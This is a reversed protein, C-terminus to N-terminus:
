RKIEEKHNIVRDIGADFLVQTGKSYIGHTTFLVIELPKFPQLRKAVEIFTRGGDCIDDVILFKRTHKEPVRAFVMGDVDGTELDRTKNFVIVEDMNGGYRSAAGADPFVVTHNKFEPHERIERIPHNRDALSLYDGLVNSHADITEFILQKQYCATFVTGMTHLCFTTENSVMHDQRGYPLFDAKIIVHRLDYRDLIQLIQCIYFVEGDHEFDWEIIAAGKRFPNILKIKNIQSTGDPFKIPEILRGNVKIM